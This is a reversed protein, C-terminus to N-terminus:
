ISKLTKVFKIGADKFNRNTNKLFQFHYRNNYSYYFKLKAEPTLYCM